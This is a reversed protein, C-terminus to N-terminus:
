EERVSTAYNSYLIRPQFNNKRLIEFSKRWQKKAKLTTCTWFWKNEPRKYTVKQEERQFNAPHSQGVRESTEHYTKIPRNKNVTSPIM